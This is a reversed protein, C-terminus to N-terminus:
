NVRRPEVGFSGGRLQAVLMKPAIHPLFLSAFLLPGLVAETGALGGDLFLGLGPLAAAIIGEIPLELVQILFTLGMGLLVSAVKFQFPIRGDRLLRWGLAPDLIKGQGMQKAAAYTFAQQGIGRATSKMNQKTM